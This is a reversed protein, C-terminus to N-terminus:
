IYLNHHSTATQTTYYMQRDHARHTRDQTVLRATTSATILFARHGYLSDFLLM